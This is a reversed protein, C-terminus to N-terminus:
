CTFYHFHMEMPARSHISAARQVATVQRGGEKKTVNNSAEKPRCSSHGEAVLTARILDVASSAQAQPIVSAVINM